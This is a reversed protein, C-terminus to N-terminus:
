ASVGFTDANAKAFAVGPIREGDVAIGRCEIGDDLTTALLDDEVGAEAIGTKNPEIKVAVLPSRSLVLEVVEAALAEPGHQAGANMEVLRDGLYRAVTMRADNRWWQLFADRDVIEVRRRAARLTLKGNPLTETKRKPNDRNVARMWGELAGAIADRRRELGALRDSRWSSIREIEQTALMDIKRAEREVGRLVRLLANARDADPPPEIEDVDGSLDDDGLLYADLDDHLEDPRM